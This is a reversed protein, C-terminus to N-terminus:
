VMAGHVARWVGKEEQVIIRAHKAHDIANLANVVASIEQNGDFLGAFILRALLEVSKTTRGSKEWRAITQTDKELMRALSEQSLGALQRLFRIEKGSLNPSEFVLTKAITKDLADGHHIQVAKGYATERWEFGNSLWVNDLGSMDYKFLDNKM